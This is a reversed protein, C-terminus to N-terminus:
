PMGKLRRGDCRFIERRQKLGAIGGAEGEIQWGVPPAGLILLVADAILVQNFGKLLRESALVGWALRVSEEFREARQSAIRFEPIVGLITQRHETRRIQEAHELELPHDGFQGDSGVAEM